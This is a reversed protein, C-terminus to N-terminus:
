YWFINDWYQSVTICQLCTVQNKMISSAPGKTMPNHAGSRWRLDGSGETDSWSNCNWKKGSRRAVCPIHQDLDWNVNVTSPESVRRSSWWNLNTSFDCHMGHHHLMESFLSSFKWNLSMDTMDKISTAMHTVVRSGRRTWNPDALFWGFRIQGMRQGWCIWCIRVQFRKFLWYKLHINPLNGMKEYYHIPSM